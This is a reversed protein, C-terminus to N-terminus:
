SGVAEGAARLRRLTREDWKGRMKHQRHECAACLDCIEARAKECAVCLDEPAEGAARRAAIRAWTTAPDGIDHCLACTECIPVLPGRGLGDRHIGVTGDADAGCAACTVRELAKAPLASLAETGTWQVLIISAGADVVLGISGAPVTTQGNRFAFRLTMDYLARVHQGKALGHAPSRSSRGTAFEEALLAPNPAYRDARRADRRRSALSPGRATM